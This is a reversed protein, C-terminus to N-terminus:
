SKYFTQAISQRKIILANLDTMKHILKTLKALIKEWTLTCWLM